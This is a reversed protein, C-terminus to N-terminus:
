PIDLQRVTLLEGRETVMAQSMIPWDPYSRGVIVVETPNTVAIACYKGDCVQISLSALRKRESEQWTDIAEYLGRMTEGEFYVINRKNDDTMVVGKGGLM